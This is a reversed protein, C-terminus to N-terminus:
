ESIGEEKPIDELPLFMPIPQPRDGLEGAVIEMKLFGYREYFGISDPKADVVVGVCGVNRAMQQALRLVSKLLALGVKQGQAETAVGLRALRLAPLPYPFRKKKEEPLEEAEIQTASVTVFSLITDNQVAVYTTGVHHRYQNQAAYRRFFRDLEDDGCTFTKRNDDPALHRITYLM